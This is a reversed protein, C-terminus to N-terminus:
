IMLALKIARARRLDLVWMDEFSVFEEGTDVLHLTSGNSVVTPKDETSLGIYNQVDKAIEYPMIYRRIQNLLACDLLM